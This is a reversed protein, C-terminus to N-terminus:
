SGPRGSAKRVRGAKGGATATVTGARRARGGWIHPWRPGQCPENQNPGIM